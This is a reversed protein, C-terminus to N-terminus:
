EKQAISFSFIKEVFIAGNKGGFQRLIVLFAKKDFFGVCVIQAPCRGSSSCNIGQFFPIFFSSIINRRL